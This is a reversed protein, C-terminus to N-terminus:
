ARVDQRVAGVGWIRRGRHDTGKSVLEVTVGFAPHNLGPAEYDMYIMPRAGDIPVGSVDCRLELVAGPSVHPHDEWDSGCRTQMRVRPSGVDLVAVTISAGHLGANRLSGELQSGDSSFYGRQDSEAAEWRPAVRETYDAIERHNRERDLALAQEAVERSRRAEDASVEAASASRRAARAETWAFAASLGAVVFAAGAIVVAWTASGWGLFALVVTAAVMADLTEAAGSTAKPVAKGLTVLGPEARPRQDATAPFPVCVV